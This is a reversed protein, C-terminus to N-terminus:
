DMEMDEGNGFGMDLERVRKKDRVAEVSYRLKEVFGLAGKIWTLHLKPTTRDSSLINIVGSGFVRQTFPENLTWDKIRYLEVYENHKSFIGSRIRLRQGTLSIQFKKTSLAKWIAVPIPLILICSLWWGVNQWQSPSGEWLIPEHSISTEQPNM